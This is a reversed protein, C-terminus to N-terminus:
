KKVSVGLASLNTELGKDIARDVGWQGLKSVMEIVLQEIAVVGEYPLDNYNFNSNFFPNIGDQDDKKGIAFNFSVEFRDM